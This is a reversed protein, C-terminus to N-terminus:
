LNACTCDAVLKPAQKVLSIAPVAEEGYEYRLLLIVLGLEMLVVLYKEVVPGGAPAADLDLISIIAGGSQSKGSLFGKIVIPLKILRQSGAKVMNGNSKLQEPTLGKLDTDFKFYIFKLVPNDENPAVIGLASKYPKVVAEENPKHGLAM